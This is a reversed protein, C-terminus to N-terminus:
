GLFPTVMFIRFSIQKIDSAIRPLTNGNTADCSAVIEVLGTKLASPVPGTGGGGVGIGGAGVTDQCGGVTRFL